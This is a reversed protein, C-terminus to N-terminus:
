QEIETQKCESEGKLTGGRHTLIEVALGNEQLCVQEIEEFLGCLGLTNM